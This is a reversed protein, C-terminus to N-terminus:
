DSFGQAAFAAERAAVTLATHPDTWGRERLFGDLDAPWGLCRGFFWTLLRDAEESDPPVRPTEGCRQAKQRARRCRDPWDPLCSLVALWDVDGGARARAVAGAVEPAVPDALLFEELISAVPTERRVVEGWLITPTFDRQTPAAAASGAAAADARMRALLDLADAAKQDVKGTPLWKRLASLEAAGIPAADLLQEWRRDPYFWSQAVAVVAEATGQVVVGESVAAAMTARINVLPESFGLYAHEADAHALAVEDDRTLTGSRFADAIAGVGVMGFSALEAARLAGMSAAGYVAIGSSLAYLIEKHWVAPVSDFYGDVLGIASPREQSVRWVDGLQAPPLYEADLVASADAVPLTPGLFVAPRHGTM